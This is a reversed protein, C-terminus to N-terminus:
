QSTFRRMARFGFFLALAILASLIETSWPSYRRAIGDLWRQNEARFLVPALRTRQAEGLEVPLGYSLALDLEKSADQAYGAEMEILALEYLLHAVITDKPKVLGIREQLQSGIADKVNVGQATIAPIAGQITEVMSGRIDHFKIGSVTHTKLWNPDAQLALKTELIRVHLWESHDHSDGNRRVGEAIWRLAETLNGALEYATGMNSATAYHGPSNQEIKQFMAIAKTVDGDLLVEVADANAKGVPDGRFQDPFQPGRKRSASDYALSRQLRDSWGASMVPVMVGRVNEAYAPGGYGNLCGWSFSTDFAVALLALLLPPSKM